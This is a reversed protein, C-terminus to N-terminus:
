ISSPTPLQTRRPTLALSLLPGTMCTTMLAMIVMMTFVRPSLIGLDFGINLVILEVLGRTNMLAGLAFSDRWRMGTWRAVVMSGGLKGVTAVAILGLCVGASSLDNLLGVQTRLGTFAFFLPLLFASSFSELRQRLRSRFEPDKPMCIGAMFAGFLAHIGIVETILGCSFVLVLVAVLANRTLSEPQQRTPALARQLFPKVLLLMSAFFAVLLLITTWCNSPNQAKAFAVVFALITWATVDDVAACTIATSGLETKTLGREEIIRALVPFATISMAIGMFLAFSTFHVTATAYARYVFLSVLVGLFYPFVISVHSVMVATRAKSRLQKVDLEMGVVFMFLIVGVQSLMRLAGLSNAPFVFQFTGPFLTGIVSPGLVIGAIMEGIVAPQHFRVFLAAFLRALLVIVILQLLLLTLPERLNERIGVLSSGIDTGSPLSTVAPSGQTTTVPQQELHKGQQLVFWIGLGCATVLAAYLVYLIVNSRRM